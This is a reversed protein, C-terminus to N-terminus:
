DKWAGELYILVSFYLDVPKLPVKDPVSNRRKKLVFVRELVM